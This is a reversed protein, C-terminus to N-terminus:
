ALPAQADFRASLSSVYSMAIVAGWLTTSLELFMAAWGSQVFAGFLPYFLLGLLTMAVALKRSWPQFFYLGVIAAITGGFTIVVLAGAVVLAPMPTAPLAEFAKAVPAPILGPLAVDMFSGLLGTAVSALLLTRFLAVAASM